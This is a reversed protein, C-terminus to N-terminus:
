QSQGGEQKSKMVVVRDAGIGKEAALWAVFEGATRQSEESTDAGFQVLLWGGASDHQPLETLDSLHMGQEQQDEVLLRDIGELGIPRWRHVIEEGHDGADAITPFAVAVLTRQYLGPCLKLTARLVTVCTSET